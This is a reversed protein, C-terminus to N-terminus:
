GVSRGDRIPIDFLVDFFRQKERVHASRGGDEFARGVPGHDCHWAEAPTFTHAAHGHILMDTSEVSAICRRPEFWPPHKLFGTIQDLRTWGTGPDKQVLAFIADIIRAILDHHSAPLRVIWTQVSERVNGAEIM